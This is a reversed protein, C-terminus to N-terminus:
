GAKKRRRRYYTFMSRERRYTLVFFRQYYVTEFGRQSKEASQINRVTGNQIIRLINSFHESKPKCFARKQVSKHFPSRDSLLSM